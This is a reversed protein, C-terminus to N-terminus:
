RRRVFRGYTGYSGTPTEAPAASSSTEIPAVSSEPASTSDVPQPVVYVTSVAPEVSSSSSETAAPTATPAESGYGAPKTFTLFGSPAATGSPVTGNKIPYPAFTESPFSSSTITTEVVEDISSFDPSASPTFTTVSDTITGTVTTAPASNAGGVTVYVTEQATVTVTTPIACDSAGTPADVVVASSEGAVPTRTSHVTVYQTSTTTSTLTTTTGSTITEAGGEVPKPTKDAVPTASAKARTITVTQYITEVSTRAYTQTVPHASPGSGVTITATQIVEHTVESVPTTATVVEGTPEATPTAELESKPCVTTAVAIVSTVLSTSRSPCDTVSSPCLTVTFIQTSSITSTVLEEEAVSTSESTGTGTPHAGTGSPTVGSPGSGTGTPYVISSDLVFTPLSSSEVALPTTDFTLSTTPTSTEEAAVSSSANVAPSGYYTGQRRVLHKFPARRAHSAEAVSLAALLAISLKFQM